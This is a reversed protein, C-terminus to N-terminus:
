DRTVTPVRWIRVTKDRGASVVFRGDASFAVDYVEDTHGEFRHLEKGTEPDWLSVTQGDFNASALRRGDASFVLGHVHHAHVQMQRIAKGTELDWLKINRDHGGSVARKGDPSLAVAWVYGTHGELRKLEKGSATDWLRVTRDHSGSLAKKGDASLAVGHVRAMHGQFRRDRGSEVDLLRVTQDDFAGFLVRKGDPFFAARYVGYQYGTFRKLELGTELDWLRVSQKDGLGTSVAKKGDASLAVSLASPHAMQHILKGTGADILHVTGATSASLVRRGDPSFAAGFVAGAHGEYCLVHLKANLALILRGIRVQVEADSATAAAERLAPRASEGIAELKQSAREREAFGGSGLQKILRTLEREDPAAAAPPASWAPLLVLLAFSFNLPV